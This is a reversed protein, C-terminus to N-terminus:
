SVVQYGAMNEKIRPVITQYAFGRLSPVQYRITEGGFKWRITLLREPFDLVAEEVFEHLIGRRRDIPAEPFSKVLKRFFSFPPMRLGEGKPTKQSAIWTETSKIEDEVKTMRERIAAPDLTGAELADLVADELPDLLRSISGVVRAKTIAAMETVFEFDPEIAEDRVWVNIAQRSPVDDWRQVLLRRAEEANGYAVALAKAQAKQQASYAM